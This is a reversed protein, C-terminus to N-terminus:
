LNTSINDGVIPQNQPQGQLLELWGVAKDPEVDLVVIDCIFKNGRTTHFRMGEKVGDASGISIGALLDKMNVETILGKLAIDETVPAIAVRAKERTTTVSVPAAAAKGFQRLYQDIQNQLSTKEEILAKTKDELVAIIALKDVLASMTEEHKAQEKIFDAETQTALTQADAMMKRQEDNSAKYEQVISAWSNVDRLANEKAIEVQKLQGTLTAVQQKLADIQGGLRVKDADAQSKLENFQRNANDENQKAAGLRSKLGDNEKKYDVANGVYTVVIGCLFISAVTLLIILVKTLTSM